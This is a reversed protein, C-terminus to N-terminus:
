LFLGCVGADAVSDVGTIIISSFPNPRATATTKGSSSDPIPMESQAGTSGQETGFRGGLKGAEIASQLSTTDDTTLRDSFSSTVAEVNDLSAVSAIQESTLPSGGGEFGRFGAPSITITNGASSKISEIKTEVGSRAALMAIILGISLSLMVVISITRVTNRFANRVGRTLTNM